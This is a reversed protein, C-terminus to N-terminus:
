AGAGAGDALEGAVDAEFSGSGKASVLNVGATLWAARSLLVIDALLANFAVGALFFVFGVFGTFGTEVGFGRPFDIESV